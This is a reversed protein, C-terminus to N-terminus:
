KLAKKHRKWIKNVREVLVGNLYAYAEESGKNLKMGKAKMFSLTAHFCEHAIIEITTEDSFVFFFGYDSEIFVADAHTNRDRKTMSKRTKKIHDYEKAALKLANPVNDGILVRICDYGWDDLKVTDYSWTDYKKKSV